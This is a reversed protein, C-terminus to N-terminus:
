RSAVGSGITLSSKVCRHPTLDYQCLASPSLGLHLQQKEANQNYHLTNQPTDATHQEDVTSFSEQIIVRLTQILWLIALCGASFTGLPYYTKYLIVTLQNRFLLQPKISCTKVTMRTVIQYVM